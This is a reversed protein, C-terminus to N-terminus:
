PPAVVWSPSRNPHWSVCRRLLWPPFSMQVCWFYHVGFKAALPGASLADSFLEGSAIVVHKSPIRTAIGAAVAYRDAGGIRTVPAYATLQNEVTKSVTGPGGAIVIEGPPNRKLESIATSPLSTGTVLLLRAKERAALPGASLADTFVEGSAVVVLSNDVNPLWRSVNASVAYRDAGGIRQEATRQIPSSPTPSPSPLAEWKGVATPSTVTQATSTTLQARFSRAGAKDTGALELQFSSDDNVIASSSTRWSQGILEQATVTSGAYGSATGKLYAAQGIAVPAIDDVTVTGLREVRFESSTLVGSGTRAEVRFNIVGVANNGPSLPLSFQGQSGATTTQDTFWGSGTNIQTSVSSGAGGPSLLGTVHGTVGVKVLTQPRITLETAGSFPIALNYKYLDHKVMLDIVKNAYEPDTAYGGLHVEVIFRDPNDTHNFAKSYRPQGKLFLGHDIFSSEDADYKRFKAVTTYQEGTEDFETTTVEFCGNQLTSAPSSCKIGFWNKANKTLLSEGWGSELIAQAMAVSAPVGSEREEAQAWVSTTTVFSAVDLAAAPKAAPLFSAALTIALLVRLLTQASPM